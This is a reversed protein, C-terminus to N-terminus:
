EERTQSAKSKFAFTFAIKTGAIMNQDGSEAGM